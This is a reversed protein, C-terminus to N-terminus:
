KITLLKPTATNWARLLNKEQVQWEFISRGANRWTTFEADIIWGKQLASASWREEITLTKFHLLVQRIFDIAVPSLTGHETLATCFDISEDEFNDDDFVIHASGGNDTIAYVLDIGMAAKLVGENIISPKGLEEWQM